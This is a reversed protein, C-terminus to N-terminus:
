GGALADALWRVGTARYMRVSPSLLDGRQDWRYSGAVGEFSLTADLGAALRAREGAAPLLGALLSGVDYAEAAFPGPDLGTASQYDHLFGQAASTSATTLDACPCSGLQLDELPGLAELYGDTRASSAVLLPVGPAMAARLAAGGPAAGTWVIAGCGRQEAAAGVRSPSGGLLIASPVSRAILSRLDESWTSGEGALCIPWASAVAAASEGLANAEEPAPPTVARWPTGAPPMAASSSLSVFPVGGGALTDIATQSMATFPAIVAGVVAPDAVVAIAAEEGETGNTDLVLVDAVDELAIELGLVAPSVVSRADPFSGDQIVAIRPSSTESGEGGGCALAVVISVALVAATRPHLSHSRM